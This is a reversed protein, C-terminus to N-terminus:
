APVSEKSELYQSEWEQRAEIERKGRQTVTYVSTRKDLEGKELLGKNVLDDHNPYLRGHNSEQEHHAWASKETAGDLSM